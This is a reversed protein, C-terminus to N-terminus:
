EDVIVKSRKKFDDLLERSSKSLERKERKTMNMKYREFVVMLRSHSDRLDSMITQRESRDILQQNLETTANM